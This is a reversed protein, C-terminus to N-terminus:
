PRFTLPYNLRLRKTVKPFIAQEFAWKVCAKVFSDELPEETPKFIVKDSRGNTNVVLTVLLRGKLAPNKAVRTRYCRLVVREGKKMVAEISRATYTGEELGLTKLLARLGQRSEADDAKLRLAEQFQRLAELYDGRMMKAQALVRRYKLDQGNIRVLERLANAAEEARKRKLFLTSILFLSEEHDAKKRLAAQLADIAGDVDGKQARLFGLRYYTFFFDQPLKTAREYVELAKEMQSTKEYADALHLHMRYHKPQVQLARELVPIAAAYQKTKVYHIEGLRELSLFHNPEIDLRKNYWTIAQGWEQKRFYLEALGTIADTHQPQKDLVKQYLSIAEADRRRSQAIEALGITADVSQPRLSKAQEFDELARDMVRWHVYVLGRGVLCWYQKPNIRLCRDFATWKKKPDKLSYGYLYHAVESDPNQSSLEQHERITEYQKGQEIMADIKKRGVVVAEEIKQTEDEKVQKGTTECAALVALFCVHLLIVWRSAQM